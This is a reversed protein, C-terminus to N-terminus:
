SLDDGYEAIGAAIRKIRVLDRIDVCDDNNADYLVEDYGVAKLLSKRMLALDDADISGDFNLDGLKDASKVEGINISGSDGGLAAASMTGLMLVAIILTILRKAKM